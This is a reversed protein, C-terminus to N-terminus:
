YTCFVNVNWYRKLHGKNTTSREVNNVFIL